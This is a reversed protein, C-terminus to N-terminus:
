GSVADASFVSSLKASSMINVKYEELFFQPVVRKGVFRGQLDTFMCLITDIQGREVLGTFTEIDLTGNM